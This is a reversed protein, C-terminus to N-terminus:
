RAPPKSLLPGKASFAQKEQYPFAAPNHCSPADADIKASREDLEPKEAFVPAQLACQLKRRGAVAPGVRDDRLDNGPGSLQRGTLIQRPRILYDAHTDPRGSRQLDGLAGDDGHRINRAHLVDGQALPECRLQVQRYGQLVVGVHRGVALIEAPGAAADLTQHHKRQTGAHSAADNDAALDEVPGVLDAAFQPM